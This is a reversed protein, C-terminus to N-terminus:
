RKTVKGAMAAPEDVSPLKASEIAKLRAVAEDLAAKEPAHAERAALAARAQEVAATAEALERSRQTEALMAARIQRVEPTVANAIAAYGRTRRLRGFSPPANM